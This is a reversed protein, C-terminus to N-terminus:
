ELEIVYLDKSKLLIDRTAQSSSENFDYPNSNLKMLMGLLKWDVFAIKKNDCEINMIEFFLTSKHKIFDEIDEIKCCSEIKYINRSPLATFLKYDIYM